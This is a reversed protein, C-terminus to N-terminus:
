LSISGPLFLRLREAWAPSIGATSAVGNPGDLNLIQSAIKQLVSLRAQGFHAINISTSGIM